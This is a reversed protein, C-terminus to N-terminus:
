DMTLFFCINIMIIARGKQSLCKVSVHLRVVRGPGAHYGERIRKSSSSYREMEGFLESTLNNRVKGSTSITDDVPPVSLTHSHPSEYERYCKTKNFVFQFFFIHINILKPSNM